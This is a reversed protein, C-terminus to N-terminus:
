NGEIFYTNLAKWEYASLLNYGSQIAKYPVSNFVAYEGEPPNLRGFNSM